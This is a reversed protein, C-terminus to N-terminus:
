LVTEFERGNQRAGHAVVHRQGNETAVAAMRHKHHRRCRPQTATRQYSPPSVHQMADDRDTLPASFSLSMKAKSNAAMMLQHELAAIRTRAAELERKASKVKEQCDADGDDDGGGGGGGCRWDCMDSGESKGEEEPTYDKKAGRKLSNSVSVSFLSCWNLRSPSNATAKLLQPRLYAIYGRECLLLVGSFIIGIGLLLFASRCDTRPPPSSLKIRPFKQSSPPLTPPSSFIRAQSVQRFPPM